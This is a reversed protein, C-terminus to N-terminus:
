AGAVLRVFAEELTPMGDTKIRYLFEVQNSRANLEVLTQIEMDLSDAIEYYSWNQLSGVFNGEVFTNPARESEDVPIGLIMDEPMSTDQARGGGVRFIPQGDNDKIKAIIEIANRHFLWRLSNRPGGMRYQSKLKYKASLLGDFTIGTASGTPVNRTATIGDPSETFIGLPKNNGDGGLYADEMQEGSDRAMESRVESEIMISSNRMLDKSILISGTGYHPELIKKGYKLDEDQAPLTLESGWNFSKLRANRKRIGLTRSMMLTHVKAHRRVFVLDDVEKLLGAAMQESTVLYGAQESDDTQLSALREQDLGAVGRKLYTQIAQQYENSGRQGSDEEVYKPRGNADYGRRVMLKSKAEPSGPAEFGGRDDDLSDAAAELSEIRKAADMHSQADAIMASFTAEDEASLLGAEDEKESNFAQAKKILEARKERHSKATIAPM